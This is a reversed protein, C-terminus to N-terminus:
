VSVETSLRSIGDALRGLLGTLREVEQPDWDHMAEALLEMNALRIRGVLAEGQETAAVVVARGDTPDVSRTVLHRGELHAAHRGATSCAVGLLDALETLRLPGGDVIRALAIAEVRDIEVGVRSLVRQHFRPISVQRVLRTLNRQMAELQEFTV